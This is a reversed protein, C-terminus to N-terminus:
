GAFASTNVVMPKLTVRTWQRYPAIEELTQDSTAAGALAVFTSLVATAVLVRSTVRM